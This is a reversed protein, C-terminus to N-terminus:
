VASRPVPPAFRFPAAVRNWFNIQGIATTLFV